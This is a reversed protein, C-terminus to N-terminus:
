RKFTYSRRHIDCFGFENITSRHLRTGYGKHKEFGYKPYEKSYYRMIADRTVKALVSAAAICQIRRDGKIVTQFPIDIIQKDRGDILVYDPKHKLSRICIDNAIITANLINIEDILAHGVIGIAYDICNDLIVPFLEERRKQSLLKSDNLGKIRANRKLIVAASVVPGAMPGRGAEDIGAVLNFGM